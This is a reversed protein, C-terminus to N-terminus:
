KCRGLARVDRQYYEHTLRLCASLYHTHPPAAALLDVIQERMKPHAFRARTKKRLHWKMNMGKM